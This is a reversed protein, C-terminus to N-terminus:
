CSANRGDRRDVLRRGCRLAVAVRTVDPQLRHDAVEHVITRRRRAGCHTGYRRHWRHITTNLLRRRRPVAAALFREVEARKTRLQALLSDDSAAVAM